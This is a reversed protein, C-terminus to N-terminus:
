NVYFKKRFSSPSLGKYKLFQRNFNAPTNYGSQFFIESITMDSEMLLKCAFSLRVENLFEIYTKKVTKRFYECFAPISMGAIDSVEKLTIVRAFESNTFKFVKELRDTKQCPLANINATSLLQCDNDEAIINLCSCLTIIRDFGRQFELEKIKASLTSTCCDSVKIGSKAQEFLHRINSTEPLSIFDRGWFDAKFQVLVACTPSAPNTCTFTHPVNAGILFVDGAAFNGAYNGVFCNGCGELILIIELETHHHWPIDFQASKFTKAFFTSEHTVPLKQLTSTM